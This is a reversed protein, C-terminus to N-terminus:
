AQSVPAGPSVRPPTATTLWASGERAAVVVHRGFVGSVRGPTASREAVAIARVVDVVATGCRIRVPGPLQARVRRVLTPADLVAADFALMALTPKREYSGGVAQPTPRAGAAIAALVPGIERVALTFCREGLTGKTDDVCVPVPHQAYIDGADFAHVMHHFTVATQSDGALITWALPDPGRHLPLASPHVNLGGHPLVDLLAAPVRGPWAACVLVDARTARVDDVCGALGRGSVNIFRAGLNKATREAPTGALARRLRRLGPRGGHGLVAVVDHGAVAAGVAVDLALGLFCVRLSV